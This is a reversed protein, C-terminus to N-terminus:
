RRRKGATQADRTPGPANRPSRAKAPVAARHSLREKAALWIELDRHFPRGEEQWLYYAAHQIEQESPDYSMSHPKM